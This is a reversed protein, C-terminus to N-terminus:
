FSTPPQVDLSCSTGSDMCSGTSSLSAIYWPDTIQSRDYEVEAFNQQVDSAKISLQIGELEVAVEKMTPRNRGNLNLCAKALNAVAVIQDKEGDKMVQADVIDFLSNEEMSMLFYTALSRSEQPRM